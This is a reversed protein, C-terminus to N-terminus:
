THRFPDMRMHLVRIIRVNAKEALYYIAHQNIFLVRYGDRVSDREAGLEPQDVLQMVGSQIAVLYSDARAEGWRDATYRWIDILDSEARASLSVGRM